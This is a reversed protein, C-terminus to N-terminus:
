PYSAIEAYDGASEGGIVAQGNVTVWVHTQLQQEVPDRRAGYHLRADIGSQRLLRQVAIGQEICKTRLPLRRSAAGVAWLINALSDQGPTRRIPVSGFLVARRFPAVAVAVSAISVAWAARALTGWQGASLDRARAVSSASKHVDAKVNATPANVM